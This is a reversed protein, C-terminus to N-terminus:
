IGYKRLLYYELLLVNAASLAANYVLVRAIDGNGVEATFGSAGFHLVGPATAGTNPGNPDNGNVRFPNSSGNSVLIAKVFEGTVVQRSATFQGNYVQHLGSRAGILWNNAGQLARNTGSSSGSYVVAITFSNSITLNTTIEDNTADFRVIPLGNLIHEKYIPRATGSSTGTKGNGSTDPWSGVPDGDVFGTLLEANWDGILTGLTAPEVFTCGLDKTSRFRLKQEGSPRLFTRGMM